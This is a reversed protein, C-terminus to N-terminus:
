SITGAFASQRTTAAPPGRSADFEVGFDDTRSVPVRYWNGAELLPIPAKGVRARGGSGSDGGRHPWKGSGGAGAASTGIIHVHFRGGGRHGDVLQERM